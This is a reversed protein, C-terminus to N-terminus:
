GLNSLGDSYKKHNMLTMVNRRPNDSFSIHIWPRKTGTSKYELLLQDFLVNDKIWKAIEFYESSSATTFQIDAAQGTEHQSRNGKKRITNTIIMDSFQEKIPDLCNEALKKLNCVIQPVSLGANPSVSRRESPLAVRTTLDGLSFYKSLMTVDPISERNAFVECNGPLIEIKADPTKDDSESATKNKGEEIEDKSIKGSVIAEEIYADTEAPDADDYTEFESSEVSEGLQEQYDKEQPDRSSTPMAPAEGSNLDMKAGDMAINGAANAKISGGTGINLDGGATLNIDQGVDLNFSGDVSMNVNGMITINATSAVTIRVTGDIYLYGNKEIITYDSGVIKNVRNGYADIEIFSGSKHFVDLREQKETDDFELAHGSESFYGRNYPYKANYPPIPQNFDGGINRIGTRRQAKKKDFITKKTTRRALRNTDPENIFDNLPYKGSPDRFGVGAKALKQRDSNSLGDSVQGSSDKNGIPEAKKPESGDPEITVYGYNSYKNVKSLYVAGIGSNLNLGRGGIAQTVVRNASDQNNLENLIGIGGCNRIIFKVASKAANEPLNLLDPNNVLDVGVDKSAIRYNDKFTIQIYGRGRYMYGENKENGYRGGYFFNGASEETSLIESLESDSLNATKSPFVQRARTVTYRLSENRPKFECEKAVNALIAIKAYPNSIGADCCAHLVLNPAVQGYIDYFGQINVNAECADTASIGEEVSKIDQESRTQNESIGFAVEEYAADQTSSTAIGSISGLIVPYQEDYDEFYLRVWSGPLLGHASFGIGSLSASDTSKMVQAWPLSDTPILKKDDTHKGFVRVRVRDAGLPDNIDEVVGTYIFM